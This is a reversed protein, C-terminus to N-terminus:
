RGAAIERIRGSEVPLVGFPPALALRVMARAVTEAEIPRLRQLPGLLLPSLPRLLLGAAREGSRPEEREGLLLSPRLLTVSDFPLDSVEAEMEGKVRSYFFPSRPHAGTASVVQLHRVGERLGTRACDVVHHHDVARFAERSGATRITTGLAVMLVEGRFAERHSPLDGFDVVAEEVGPRRLTPPLPRRGVARVRSGAQSLLRILNRGVLGTAGVVVVTM